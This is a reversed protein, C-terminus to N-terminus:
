APVETNLRDAIGLLDAADVITRLMERLELCEARLEDITQRQRALKAAAENDVNWGLLKCMDAVAVPHLCLRGWMPMADVARDLDIIQEGEAIEYRLSVFCAGTVTDAPWASRLQM